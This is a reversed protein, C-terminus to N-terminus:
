PVSPVHGAVAARQHLSEVHHREFSGRCEDSTDVPEEPMGTRDVVVVASHRPRQAGHGDDGGAALLRVGAGDGDGAAPYWRVGAPEDAGPASRSDTTNADGALFTRM